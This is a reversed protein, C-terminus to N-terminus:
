VNVGCNYRLHRSSRTSVNQLNDCCINTKRYYNFGDAINLALNTKRSRRRPCTHLNFGTLHSLKLLRTARIAYYSPAIVGILSIRNHKNIFFLVSLLRTPHVRSQIFIQLKHSLIQM